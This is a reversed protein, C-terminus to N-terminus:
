PFPNSFRPATLMVNDTLTHLYAVLADRQAPTLNLRIPNNTGPVRLGPDLFPNPRVGSDYFEVVQQLSTFRGDHMFRRRVGVNRLSPAKFLGNGAGADTLVLDLGTNHTRDSVAANTRHCRVCTAPPNNFLQRGAEEQPTLFGPQLAPTGAFASDFRSNVSVMSRVFQALARAIRENTVEGSGFAAQFLPAYYPTVGVKV